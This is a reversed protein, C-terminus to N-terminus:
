FILCFVELRSLVIFVSVVEWEGVRLIELDRYFFFDLGGFIEHYGKRDFILGVGWKCKCKCM